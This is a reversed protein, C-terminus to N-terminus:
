LSVGYHKHIGHKGHFGLSKGLWPSSYNHEISWRDALEESPFKIGYEKELIPRYVRSIIVDEPIIMKNSAGKSSYKKRINQDFDELLYGVNLDLLANYLKKSRLSFGGNGINENKQHWPWVAGIYDYDLFLDTWASKNVAFGDYHVIINFDTDVVAPITKLHIKGVSDEFNSLNFKDIKEWIVPVSLVEQIDIDSFWYVKTINVNEITKKIAQITKEYNLTDICSISITKNTM